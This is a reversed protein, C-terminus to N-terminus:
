KSIETSQRRQNNNKRMRVRNREKAKTGSLNVSFSGSAVHAVGCMNANAPSCFDPGMGLQFLMTRESRKMRPSPRKPPINHPWSNSGANARETQPIGLRPWAFSARGSAKQIHTHTSHPASELLQVRIRWHGGLPVMDVTPHPDFNSWCPVAPKPGHKWKGPSWKPYMHKGRLWNM